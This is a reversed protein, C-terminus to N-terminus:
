WSPHMATAHQRFVVWLQELPVDKNHRTNTEHVNSADHPRDGLVRTHKKSIEELASHKM